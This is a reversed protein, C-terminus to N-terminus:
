RPAGIGELAEVVQRLAKRDVDFGHDAADRVDAALGAIRELNKAVFAEAKRSDQYVIWRDLAAKGQRELVGRAESRRSADMRSVALAQSKTMGEFEPAAARAAAMNRYVTSRDVKTGGLTAMDAIIEGASMGRYRDPHEERLRPIEYRKFDEYMRGREEVTADPAFLATAKLLALAESDSLNRSVAEIGSFRPDDPMREHLLKMAEWRHHGAVIQYRGDIMPRVLIAQGLGHDRISEALEEVKGRNIERNNPHGVLRDLPLVLLESGSAMANLEGSESVAMLQDLLKSSGM